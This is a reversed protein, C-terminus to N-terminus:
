LNQFKAMFIQIKFKTNNINLVEFAYYKLWLLSILLVFYMHVGQMLSLMVILFLLVLCLVWKEKGQNSSHARPFFQGSKVMAIKEQYSMKNNMVANSQGNNINFSKSSNSLNPSQGAPFNLTPFSLKLSAAEVPTLTRIALQPPAPFNSNPTSNHPAMSGLVQPQLM